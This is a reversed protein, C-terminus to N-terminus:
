HVGCYAPLVPLLVVALPLAEESLSCSADVLLRQNHALM